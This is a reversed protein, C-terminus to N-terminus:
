KNRLYQVVGAMCVGLQKYGAGSPHVGNTAVLERANGEYFSFPLKEEIVFGYDPDLVTGTDVLFVNNNRMAVTDYTRILLNRADWMNLHALSANRNDSNNPAEDATTPTCIGVKISANYKHISEILADMNEKYGDWGSVGNHFDNKGLFVFVFDPM